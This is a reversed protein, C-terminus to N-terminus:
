SKLKCPLALPVEFRVRHVAQTEDTNKIGGGISLVSIKAKGSAETSSVDKVQIAVDFKVVQHDAAKYIPTAGVIRIEEPPNVNGGLVEIEESASKVGRTIQVLTEKIYDDLQM